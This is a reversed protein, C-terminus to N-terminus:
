LCASHYKAVLGCSTMGRFISIKMIVVTLVEFNARTSLHEMLEIGNCLFFFAKNGGATFIVMSENISNSFVSVKEVASLRIYFFPFLYILTNPFWKQM